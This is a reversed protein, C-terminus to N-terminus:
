VSPFVSIGCYNGYIEALTDTNSEFAFWMDFIVEGSEKAVIIRRSGTGYLTCSEEAGFPIRFKGCENEVDVSIVSYPSLNRVTLRM